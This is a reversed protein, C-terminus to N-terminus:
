FNIEENNIENVKKFHLELSTETTQLINQAHKVTAKIFATGEENTNNQLLLYNEQPLKSQIKTGNIAWSYLLNINNKGEVDFNFPVAEFDVQNRELIYEGKIAKDYVVGLIPNNEYLVVDPTTSKLTISKSALLNSNIASVEVTITMPREILTGKTSFTNKGYGSISQQVIGNISWTYVLNEANIQTGSQTIFNPVAIFNIFSESTFLRKGKFFPHAYTDTEYILDVDAPNLNITHTITGGKEKTIIISITSSKGSTPAEVQIAVAGTQTLIEKGDQKWTIKAKNLDTLYSTIQIYVTEGPKPIKPYQEISIQEEVGVPLQTNQDFLDNFNFSSSEETSPATQSSVYSVGVFITVILISLIIYRYKM